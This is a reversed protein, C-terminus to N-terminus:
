QFFFSVYMNLYKSVTPSIYLKILPLITVHFHSIAVHQHNRYPSPSPEVQSLSASALDMWNILFRHNLFEFCASLNGFACDLFVHLVTCM